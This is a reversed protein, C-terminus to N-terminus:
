ISEIKGEQNFKSGFEHAMAVMRKFAEAKCMTLKEEDPLRSKFVQTKIEDMEEKSLFVMKFNKMQDYLFSLGGFPWSYEKGKQREAELIDVYNNFITIMQDKQEELTPVPKPEEKVKKAVEKMVENKQEIFRKIWQNFASISFFVKQGDYEGNCGRKVALLIEAETLGQYDNLDSAIFSILAKEENSDQCKYGLRVKAVLLINAALSILEGEEFTKIQKAKQAAVIEAEAKSFNRSFLQIEM